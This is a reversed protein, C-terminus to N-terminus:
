IRKLAQFYRSLIDLRGWYDQTVMWHAIAEARTTQIVKKLKKRVIQIHRSSPHRAYISNAKVLEAIQKSSISPDRVLEAVLSRAIRKASYVPKCLSSVNSPKNGGQDERGHESWIEFYSVRHKIFRILKWEGLGAMQEFRIQFQCKRTRCSCSLLEATQHIKIGNQVSLYANYSGCFCDCDWSVPFVIGVASHLAIAEIAKWSRAEWRETDLPRRVM